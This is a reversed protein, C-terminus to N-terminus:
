VGIRNAFHTIDFSPFFRVSLTFMSMHLVPYYIDLTQKNKVFNERWRVQHLQFMFFIWKERSMFKSFKTWIISLERLSKIQINLIYKSKPFCVNNEQLNAFNGCLTLMDCLVIIKTKTCNRGFFVFSILTSSVFQIRNSKIIHMTKQANYDM